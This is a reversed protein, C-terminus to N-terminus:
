PRITQIASGYVMVSVKLPSHATSYRSQLHSTPSQGPNTRPSDFSRVLGPDGAVFRDGMVEAKLGIDRNERGKQPM